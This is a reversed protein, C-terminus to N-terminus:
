TFHRSAPRITALATMIATATLVSPTRSTSPMATPGLSASGNQVSKRRASVRRPRRPTFSTMASAWTPRFAAAALTSVAVQCRQLTCKRRLARACAPLPWRWITSARDVGGEGLLGELGGGGLPATDGVQQPRPERLEGCEEVAGLGVHAREHAEGLGV